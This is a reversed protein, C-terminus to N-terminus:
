IVTFLNKEVYGFYILPVVWFVLVHLGWWACLLKKGKKTKGDFVNSVWDATSVLSKFGYDEVLTRFFISIIQLTWYCSILIITTIGIKLM